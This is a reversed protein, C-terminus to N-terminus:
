GTQLYKELARRVAGPNKNMEGLYKEVKLGIGSDYLNVGFIREDSLLKKISSHIKKEDTCGFGIENMIGVAYGLMPDPSPEFSNGEDDVGLLYRCWGAFVLPIYELSDAKGVEAYRKITEGFRVGLKQSTDCAIRQPTDRIFSNAFRKNLVEDLFRRPEIIKPDDVVPLGEDHGVRKVLESLQEDKMEDSIRDYGLLCGFIALCTHLPNLCTCVKM